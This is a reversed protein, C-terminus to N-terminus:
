SVPRYIAVCPGGMVHLEGLDEHPAGGSKANGSTNADSGPKTPAPPLLSKKECRRGYFGRQCRSHDFIRFFDSVLICTIKLHM